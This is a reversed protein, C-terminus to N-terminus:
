GWILQSTTNGVSLSLPGYFDGPKWLVAACGLSPADTRSMFPDRVEGVACAQRAFASLRYFTLRVVTPAALAFVDINLLM